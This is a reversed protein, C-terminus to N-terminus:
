FSLQRFEGIYNIINNIEMRMSLMKYVCLGNSLKFYIQMDTLRIDDHNLYLCFKYIYYVDEFKLDDYDDNVICREDIRLLFSLEHNCLPLCDIIFDVFMKKNM